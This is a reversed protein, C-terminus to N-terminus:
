SSLFGNAVYWDRADAIMTELALSTFGLERAAKSSDYRPFASMYRAQGPNLGPPKGTFAAGLEALYGYFVVFWRPMVWAPPDVGMSAAIAAFVDRYSANVGGCIYREGPKAREIAAVHAKAVEVVHAWPAGGPPIGPVKKDRIDMFLRGFQLTHDCPGIMSGPNIVSVDLGRAAHDMVIAEGDRKTEAYNYGYGAYTFRDWTEDALSVPNFGLADVTSTHIVKRVGADLAAAMVNRTGDVNVERQRRFRHKWFSTDGAIHLVVDVDKMVARVEEKRTVDGHTISVGPKDIYTSATGPLGFAVIDGYGRELLAHVINTGLFGTAGTVLVRRDRGM